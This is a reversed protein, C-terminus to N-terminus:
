NSNNGRHNTSNSNPNRIITEYMLINNSPDFVFRDNSNSTPNFISEVFRSSLTNILSDSIENNSIDYSVQNGSIDTTQITTRTTGTTGTVGANDSSRTTGTSGIVGENDTTRASGTNGANGTSGRNSTESYNRIDYRCVPCRTNGQFWEDFEAPMFIHGCHRIQRVQDDISFHEMSIPCTESIPRDIDGYRVLRSATEIQLATPRVTVTSNLFSSLINSIDNSFDTNMNRNRSTPRTVYLGPNIPNQYDYLINNRNRATASSAASSAASSSSASTSTRSNSSRTSRQNQQRQQREQEQYEDVILAINYRIEDLVGYLRDIQANAHNYQTAYMNILQRQDNNM